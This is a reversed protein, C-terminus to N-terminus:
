TVTDDIYLHFQRVARGSLKKVDHIIDAVADHHRKDCQERGDQNAPNHCGVIDNILHLPVAFGEVPFFKVTHHNAEDGRDHHKNQKQLRM